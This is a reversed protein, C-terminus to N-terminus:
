TAFCVSSRGVEFPLASDSDSLSAFCCGAGDGFTTPTEM